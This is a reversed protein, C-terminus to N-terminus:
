RTLRKSPQNLNLLYALAQNDISLKLYDELYSRFYALAMVAALADGEITPYNPHAKDCLRLPYGNVNLEQTFGSFFKQPIEFSFNLTITFDPSISTVVEQYPKECKNAWIFQIGKQMLITLCKM